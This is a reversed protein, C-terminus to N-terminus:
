RPQPLVDKLISCTRGLAGRLAMPLEILAAGPRAPAQELMSLVQGELARADVITVLGAERLPIVLDEFNRFGPGILTPIGWRVSELPNHGGHWTWGGAVLAVTGERYASPLEGLTDLLLLDCSEWAEPTTPWVGSARRFRLGQAKFKAAVEQFRKPQRPALIMRVEPHRERIRLWLAVLLDEEGELTNGAVLIRARSWAQRLSEWGDHLSNPPPLDAKLNGGL